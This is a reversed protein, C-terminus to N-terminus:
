SSLSPIVTASSVVYPVRKSLIMWVAAALVPCFTTTRISSYSAGISSLLEFGSSCACIRLIMRSKKLGNFASSPNNRKTKRVPIVFNECSLMKLSSFLM